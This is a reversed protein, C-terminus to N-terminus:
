SEPLGTYPDYTIAYPDPDPNEISDIMTDFRKRAQAIIQQAPHLRAEAQILASLSETLRAILRTGHLYDLHGRRIARHTQHILRRILAVESKASHLKDIQPDDLPNTLKTPM